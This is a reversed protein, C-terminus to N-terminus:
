RCMGTVSKRGPWPAPPYLGVKYGLCISVQLVPGTNEEDDWAQEKVAEPDARHISGLFLISGSNLTGHRTYHHGLILLLAGLARKTM